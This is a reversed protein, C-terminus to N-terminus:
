HLVGDAELADVEADSLGLLEQLVDRNSEGLDQARFARPTFGDLHWPLGPLRIAEGDNGRSDIFFGRERLHADALAAQANLSV